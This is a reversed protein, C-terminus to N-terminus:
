FVLNTLKTVYHETQTETDLITGVFGARTEDPSDTYKVTRDSVIWGVRDVIVAGLRNGESTNMLVYCTEIEPDRPNWGWSRGLDWVPWTEGRVTIVGVLGQKGPPGPQWPVWLVIEQVQELPFALPLERVWVTLCGTVAATM